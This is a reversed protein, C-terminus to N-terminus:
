AGRRVMRDWVSPQVVRQADPHARMVRLIAHQRQDRTLGSERWFMMEEVAPDGPSLTVELRPERATMWQIISGIGVAVALWGLVSAIKGMPIANYAAIFAILAAVLSPFARRVTSEALHLGDRYVFKARVGARRCRERLTELDRHQQAHELIKRVVDEARQDSAVRREQARVVRRHSLAYKNM